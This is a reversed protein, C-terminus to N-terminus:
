FASGRGGGSFGGGGGSTFGKTSFFKKAANKISSGWAAATEKVNQQLEVADILQSRGATSFNVTGTSSSVGNIQHVWGDGVGAAAGVSAAVDGATYGTHNVGLGNELKAVRSALGSLDVPPASTENNPETVKYAKGDDSEDAPVEDVKYNTLESPVEIKPLDIMEPIAPMEIQQAVYAITKEITPVYKGVTITAGDGGIEDIELKIIRDQVRLPESENFGYDVVQVEDGLCIGDVDMGAAAFAAVTGEYSVSPRTHNHLDEQAYELLIEEDDTPYTVVCTPYEWGGHGDSIRFVREADYDSIYDTGGAEGRIGIRWTFTTTDDEAYVTEGEGLPVVRCYYPGSEPVRRISTLEHGWEFRRIADESGLHNRLAVKRSEVGVEGVAIESDVEGGWWRVVTTIRDWATDHIMVVGSRNTVDVTGVGWRSTGALAASLAESARAPSAMGPQRLGGIVARLDSQLSWNLVYTGTGADGDEHSEDAEDVVWERWRGDSHHTLARTGVDLHVNTEISLSHQGNIEESRTCSLLNGADDSLEGIPKGERNFLLIRFM